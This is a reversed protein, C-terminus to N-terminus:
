PWENMGTQARDIPGGYFRSVEGQGYWWHASLWAKQCAALGEASPSALFADVALAMAAIETVSDEYNGHLNIAYQRVVAAGADEPKACSRGCACALAACLVLAIRALAAVRRVSGSFYPAVAIRRKPDIM